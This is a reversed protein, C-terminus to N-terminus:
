HRELGRGVAAAAAALGRSVAEAQAAGQQEKLKKLAAESGKKDSQCAEAEQQCAGLAKESAEAKKECSGLDKGV